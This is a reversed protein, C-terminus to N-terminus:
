TETIPNVTTPPPPAPGGGDDDPPPPEDEPPPPPLPAPDPHAPGAHDTIPPILPAEEGAAAAPGDRTVAGAGPAPGDLGGRGGGTRAEGAPGAVTRSGAARWQDQIPTVGAPAAPSPVPGGGPVSGAAADGPGPAAGGGGGPGDGAGGPGARLGAPAATPSRISDRSRTATCGGPTTRRPM